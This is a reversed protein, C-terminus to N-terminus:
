GRLNDKHSCGVCSFGEDTPIGEEKKIEVDCGLCITYGDEM